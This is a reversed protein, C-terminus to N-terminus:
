PDGTIDRVRSELRKIQKWMVSVQERLLTMDARTNENALRVADVSGMAVVHDSRIANLSDQLGEVKQM